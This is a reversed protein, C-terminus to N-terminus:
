QIRELQSSLILGKVTPRAKAHIIEVLAKHQLRKFAELVSLDHNDVYLAVEVSSIWTETASYVGCLVQFVITEFKTLESTTRGPSLYRGTRKM